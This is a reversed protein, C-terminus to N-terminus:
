IMGQAGILEELLEIEHLLAATYSSYGNWSGPIEPDIGNDPDLYDIQEQAIEYAEGGMAFASQAILLRVDRIDVTADHSFVWLTDVYTVSRGTAVARTYQRTAHSVACHGALADANPHDSYDYVQYFHHHALGLEGLRAYSWGAGVHADALTSDLEIAQLFFEVADQYEGAEFQIWGGNARREAPGLGSGGCGPGIFWIVAASAVGALVRGSIRRLDPMM